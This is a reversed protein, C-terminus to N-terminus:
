PGGKEWGLQVLMEMQFLGNLDGQDWPFILLLILFAIHLSLFVLVFLDLRSLREQFYFAWNKKLYHGSRPLLISMNALRPGWLVDM